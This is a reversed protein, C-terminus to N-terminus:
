SDQATVARKDAAEAAQAARTRRVGRDMWWVILALTVGIGILNILIFTILIFLQEAKWGLMITPSADPEVTTTLIPIPVTANNAIMYSTLAGGALVVALLIGLIVLKKV